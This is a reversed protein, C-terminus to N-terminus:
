LSIAPKDKKRRRWRVYQGCSPCPLEAANIADRNSGVYAKWAHPVDMVVQWNSALGWATGLPGFIMTNIVVPAAAQLAIWPIEDKIKQGAVKYDPFDKHCGKCYVAM